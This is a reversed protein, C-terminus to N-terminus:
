SLGGDILSLVHSDTDDETVKRPAYGNPQLITDDIISSTIPPLAIMESFFKVETTKANSPVLPLCLDERLLQEGNDKQVTGTPDDRIITM